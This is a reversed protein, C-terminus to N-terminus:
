INNAYASCQTLRTAINNGRLEVQKLIEDIVTSFTTAPLPDGRKVGMLMECKETYNRNVKVTINTDQLRKAILKILKSQIDHKNLCKIIKERYVSDFAQTYEIFVNHL